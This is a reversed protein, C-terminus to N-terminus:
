KISNIEQRVIKLDERIEKIMKIERTRDCIVHLLTFVFLSWGLFGLVFLVILQYHQAM